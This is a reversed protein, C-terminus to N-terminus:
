YDVILLINGTTSFGNFVAANLDDLFFDVM